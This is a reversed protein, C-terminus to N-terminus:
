FLLSLPLVRVVCSVAVRFLCSFFLSSVPRKALSAYSLCSIILVAGFLWKEKYNLFLHSKSAVYFCLGKAFLKLQPEFATYGARKFNLLSTM